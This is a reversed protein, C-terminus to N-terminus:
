WRPQSPGLPAPSPNLGLHVPRTRAAFVLALVFVFLLLFAQQQFLVLDDTAPRFTTVFLVFGCVAFPNDPRAVYFNHAHRILAGYLVSILIVGLLGFNWYEEATANVPVALGERVEGLFTQAYISGPGRPKGEWVWRPVFAFIAAGYTSGLLPGGSVEHGESIVPVTAQMSRRLEIEEQARALVDGTDAGQIAETVTQGATGSTRVINLAGFALFFLPVLTVALRWPIRRNRLGWTLGVLMFVAFVASRAGNSLFQAAAILIMLGLFLPQRVDNPRAAVWVMLAILGLDVAGILPGLGAMSRFRGRAMDALHLALGGRLAILLLLVGISAGIFILAMTRIRKGDFEKRAWLKKQPAAKARRDRVFSYGIYVSLLAILECLNAWAEAQWIEPGPLWGLGTYFPPSIQEGLLLGGLGGLEDITSPMAILLPWLVATLILPHLIGLPHRAYFIVPAIRALDTAIALLIAATFAAEGGGQLGFLAAQVGSILEGTLLVYAVLVVQFVRPVSRAGVAVEGTPRAQQAPWTEPHARAISM